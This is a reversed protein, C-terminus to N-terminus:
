PRVRVTIEASEMSSSSPISSRIFFYKVQSRTEGGRRLRCSSKRVKLGAPRNDEPQRESADSPGARPGPAIRYAMRRCKANWRAALVGEGNVLLASRSGEAERAAPGKAPAGHGGLHGGVGPPAM